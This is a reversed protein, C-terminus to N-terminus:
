SQLTLQQQQDLLKHLEKKENQLDEILNRLFLLESNDDVKVDKQQRNTSSKDKFMSKIINQGDVSLYVTNGKKSMFQHLNTSSDKKIKQWIAQKTVGLEEALEKITKDAM